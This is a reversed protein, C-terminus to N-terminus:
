ELLDAIDLVAVDLAEMLDVGGLTIEECFTSLLDRMDGYNPHLIQSFGALMQEAMVGAYANAEVHDTWVSSEYGSYTVPMYGSRVAWYATKDGRLLFNIFQIAADIEAQPANAFVGINTGQIMSSQNLKGPVRAIKVTKGIEGAAKNWYYYGASTDIAMSLINLNSNLYEGTVWAYKSLEVYFEAAEVGAENDLTVASWDENLITGDNQNLLTLFQEPNSAPRLGTGYHDMVGDGDSDYTLDKALGLFGDWTTPVVPVDEELYYFVMISKNFPVTLLNGNYIATSMLGDIIDDQIEASVLDDLPLLAEAVPPIWNEYFITM